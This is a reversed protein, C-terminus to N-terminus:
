AVPALRPSLTFHSIYSIRPIDPIRRPHGILFTQPTWSQGDCGDYKLLITCFPGKLVTKICLTDFHHSKGFISLQLSPLSETSKTCKRWDEQAALQLLSKHM